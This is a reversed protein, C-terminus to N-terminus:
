FLFFELVSVRFFFFFFFSVVYWNSAVFGTSIYLVKVGLPKLEIRLAESMIRLAAKSGCYAAQWPLGFLEATSGAMVVVGGAEVVMGAFAQTVRMAGWVNVDFMRKCLEVDADLYPM